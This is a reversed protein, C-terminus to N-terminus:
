WPRYLGVDNPIKCSELNREESGEERERKSLEVRAKKSDRLSVM